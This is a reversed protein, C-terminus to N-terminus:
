KLSGDIRFIANACRYCKKAREDVSCNFLHSSKLTVGLDVWKDTWDIKKGNLSLDAKDEVRRGFYLVKSKKANLGIDWEMCYDGCAELLLSLGKISPAM